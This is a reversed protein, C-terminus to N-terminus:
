ALLENCANLFRKQLEDFACEDFGKRVIIVVDTYKPLISQYRQFIQRFVRKAYNRRVANGIKKSVMIGLRNCQSFDGPRRIIARFIFYGCDRKLGGTRIADFDSQRHLRQNLTFRM